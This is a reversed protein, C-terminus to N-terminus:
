GRLAPNLVVYEILVYMSLTFLSIAILSHFFKWWFGELKWTGFTLFFVGILSAFLYRGQPQDDIHLSHYLSGYINLLILLPAWAMCLLWNWSVRSIYVTQAILTLLLLGLAAWAMTIYIWDPLGVTMYGFVGYFSETSLLFWRNDLRRVLDGYSLHQDALHFGDAYTSDSPRRGPSAKDNRMSIIQQHWVGRRPSLEPNWWAAFIYVALLPILLRLAIFRWGPRTKLLHAAVIVSPLIIGLTFGIKSLLTFLFLVSFAVITGIGWARPSCEIMKAAVLFLLVSASVGFADSNAYSYVYIVQPISVIVLGLLWPPFLSCRTWALVSLTLLLLAVNCFRYVHYPDLGPWHWHILAGVTGYLIYVIEGTYVRSWGYLSYYVLQSKPEPRLWHTRYYEFADVHVYEDPHANFITVRAISGAVVVPFLILLLRFLITATLSIIRWFIQRRQLPFAPIIK